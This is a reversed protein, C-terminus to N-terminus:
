KFSLKKIDYLAKEHPALFIGYSWFINKALAVTFIASIVTWFLVLVCIITEIM